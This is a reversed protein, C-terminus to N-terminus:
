NGFKKVDIGLMKLFGTPRLDTLLPDVQSSDTIGAYMVAEPRTLFKGSKTIFGDIARYAWDEIDGLKNIINHIIFMHSPGTFVDKGIVIAAAVIPDDNPGAGIIKKYAKELLAEKEYSAKVGDFDMKTLKAIIEESDKEWDGSFLYAKDDIYIDGRPKGKKDWIEDYIFGLEDVYAKVEGATDGSLGESIRATHIIIEHGDERLKELFEKAGPKPKGFEFKPGPHELLTDDLDIIVKAM